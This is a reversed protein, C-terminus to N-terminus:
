YCDRHNYSASRGPPRCGRACAPSRRRPWSTASATTATTAVFDGAAAGARSPTSASSPPSPARTRRARGVRRGHDRRRNCNTARELEALAIVMAPSRRAPSTGSSGAPPSSALTAVARCSCTRTARRSRTPHVSGARRVPPAPESTEPPDVGERSRAARRPSPRSARVTCESRSARLERRRRVCFVGCVASLAIVAGFGATLIWERRVPARQRGTASPGPTAALTPPPSPSVRRARSRSGPPRRRSTPGRSSPDDRTPLETEGSVVRQLTAGLVLQRLTDRVDGASTGPARPRARKELM